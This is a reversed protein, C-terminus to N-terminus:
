PAVPGALPPRRGRMVPGWAGALDGNRARVRVRLREHPRLARTSVWRRGHLDRVERAAGGRLGFRVDYASAGAVGQWRAVWTGDRRVRLRAVAPGPREGPATVSLPESAPGGVGAAVAQVTVDYDRGAALGALETTRRAQAPAAAEPEGVRVVRRAGPDHRVGPARAEVVYATATPVASWTVTIANGAPDARVDDVTGPPPPRPVLRLPVSFKPSLATGKASQVRFVYSRGIRLGTFTWRTDSTTGVETWPEGSPRVWVTHSTAGPAAEWELLAETPDTPEVEVSLVPPAPGLPVEPLPRLAPGGVGLAHLADAVAAALHLEGAANLHVGDWTHDAAVFGAADALAVREDGATLGDADRRLMANWGTAGPITELPVTSVVVDVGPAAARADALLETWEEWLQAPTSRGWTLDNTGLVVVVVDPRTEAVVPGIPYDKLQQGWAAAHDRDFHPDAYDQSGPVHEASDWLDDRTGVLDIEEVSTRQLHQWLRYRWTWDGSSGHTLSDGVLLVRLGGGPGEDPQASPSVGALALLPVLLLVGRRLARSMRPSIGRRRGDTSGM